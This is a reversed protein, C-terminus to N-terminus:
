EAGEDFSLRDINGDTLRFFADQPADAQLAQQPDLGAYLGRLVKGAVGHSVAITPTPDRSADDLWARLRAAFADYGEGGPAKFAWNWREVGDLAGPYKAEIEPQTMTEWHGCGIEMLRKDFTIVPANPLRAAILEATHKTRGLPSAVIRFNSAGRLLACLLRGAETAQRVGNETLPSDNQGQYRREVNYATEGHRILYIM